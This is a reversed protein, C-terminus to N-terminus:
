SANIAVCYEDFGGAGDTKLGMAFVRGQSVIPSSFGNSASSNRWLTNSGNTVWKTNMADSAIGDTTPGRYQPWDTALAAGQWALTLAMAYIVRAGVKNGGANIIM